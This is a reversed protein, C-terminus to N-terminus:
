VPNLKQIVSTSEVPLGKKTRDYKNVAERAEKATPYPGLFVERPRWTESYILAIGLFSGKPAKNYTTHKIKVM